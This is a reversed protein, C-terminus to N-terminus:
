KRRRRLRQDVVDLEGPFLREVLTLFHGRLRAPDIIAAGMEDEYRQVLTALALPSSQHIAEIAQLDHEDGRMVKMLVLDHKEPIM